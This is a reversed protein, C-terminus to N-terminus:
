VKVWCLFCWDGRAAFVKQMLLEPVLRQRWTLVVTGWVPRVWAAARGKLSPVSCCGGRRSPLSTGARNRQGGAEALQLVEGSVNAAAGRGM